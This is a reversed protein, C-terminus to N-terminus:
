GLPTGPGCGHEEHRAGRIRRGPNRRLGGAAAGYRRCAPCQRAPVRFGPASCTRKTPVVSQLSKSASASWSCVSESVPAQLQAVLSEPRGVKGACFRRYGCRRATEPRVWARALGPKGPITALPASCATRLPGGHGDRVEGGAQAACVRAVAQHARCRLSKAVCQIVQQGVRLQPQM